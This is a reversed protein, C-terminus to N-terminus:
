YLMSRGSNKEADSLAKAIKVKESKQKASNNEFVEIRERLSKIEALLEERTKKQM